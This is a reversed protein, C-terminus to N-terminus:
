GRPPTAGAACGPTGLQELIMSRLPVIGCGTAVFLKKGRKGNIGFRGLPGLAEVEDGPQLGLVYRSGIGMPSVDILLEIEAQSPFSAISYSRRQGRDDVKLSIYQGALFSFPRTPALKLLWFSGALNAKSVLKMM